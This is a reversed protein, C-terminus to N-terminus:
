KTEPFIDKRWEPADFDPVCRYNRKQGTAAELKKYVQHVSEAAERWEPYAFNVAAKWGVGLNVGWHVSGYDTAVYESPGQLHRYVQIKEGSPGRWAAVSAPDLWLKRQELCDLSYDEGLLARLYEHLNGIDRRPVSYWIVWCHSGPPAVIVNASGFAYDEIHCCFVSGMSMYYLWPSIIGAGWLASHGSGEGIPEDALEPNKVEAPAIPAGGGVGNGNTGISNGDGNTSFGGEASRKRKKARKAQMDAEAEIIEKPTCRQECTDLMRRLISEQGDAVSNPEWPHPGSPPRARESGRTTNGNLADLAVSALYPFRIAIRARLTKLFLAEREKPGLGRYPSCVSKFAKDVEGLLDSFSTKGSKYRNEEVMEVNPQHGQPLTQQLFSFHGRLSKLKTNGHHLWRLDLLASCERSYDWVKDCKVKIAGQRQLVALSERHCGRGRLLECPSSSSVSVSAGETVGHSGGDFKDEPIGEWGSERPNTAPRGYCGAKLDAEAMPSFADSFAAEREVLVGAPRDDCVTTPRDTSPQESIFPGASSTNRTTMDPVGDGISPSASATELQSANSRGETSNPHAAGSSDVLEAENVNAPEGRATAELAEVPASTTTATSHVVGDIGRVAAAANVVGASAAHCHRSGWIGDPVKPAEDSTDGCLAGRSLKTKAEDVFNDGVRILHTFRKAVSARPARRLALPVDSANVTSQQAADGAASRAGLYGGPDLLTAGTSTPVLTEASGTTARLELTADAVRESDDEVTGDKSGPLSPTVAAVGERQSSAGFKERCLDHEGSM